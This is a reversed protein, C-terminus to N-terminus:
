NLYVYYYGILRRRIYAHIYLIAQQICPSVETMQCICRALTQYHGQYTNM